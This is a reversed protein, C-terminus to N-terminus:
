NSWSQQSWTAAQETNRKVIQKETSVLVTLLHRICVIITNVTTKTSEAILYHDPLSPSLTRERFPSQESAGESRLSIPCFIFDMGKLGELLLWQLIIALSTQICFVFVVVIVFVSFVFFSKLSPNPQHRWRQHLHWHTFVKWGGLWLLCRWRRITHHKIM